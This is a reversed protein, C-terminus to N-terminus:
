LPAIIVVVSDIIEYRLSYSYLVSDLNNINIGSLDPVKIFNDHETYIDLWKLWIFFLFFVTVVSFILHKYLSKDKIFELM